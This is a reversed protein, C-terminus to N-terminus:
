KIKRKGSGNGANGGNTGIGAGGNVKPQYFEEVIRHLMNGMNVGLNANNFKNHISSM